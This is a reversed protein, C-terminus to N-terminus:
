SITSCHTVEIFLDSNTVLLRKPRM